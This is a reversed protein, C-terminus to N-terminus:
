LCIHGVKISGAAPQIRLFAAVGAARWGTGDPLCHALLMPDGGDEVGSLWDRHAAGDPFPGYPLYEWVRPASQAATFLDRGLFAASLPELRTFRGQLVRAAPPPPEWGGLDDQSM